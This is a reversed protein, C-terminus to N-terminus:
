VRRWGKPTHRYHRVGKATAPLSHVNTWGHGNWYAFGAVGTANAPLKAARVCGHGSWRLLGKACPRVQTPHGPRAGSPKGINPADTSSAITLDVSVDLPDPFGDVRGRDTFQWGEIDLGSITPEHSQYAAIWVPVGYLTSTLKPRGSLFWPGTYVEFASPYTKRVCAAYTKQWAALQADSLSGATELDETATDGNKWHSQIAGVFRACEASPTGQEPHVYDYHRVTLGDAHAQDSLGGQASWTYGTGETAKIAIATFGAKAYKGLDGPRNNSSIDVFTSQRYTKGSGGQVAITAPVAVGVAITAGTIVAKSAAKEALTAFLGM